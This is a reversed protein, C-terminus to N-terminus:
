AGGENGIARVRFRQGDGDLVLRVNARKAIERPSDQLLWAVRGRRWNVRYEAADWGKPDVVFDTRALTM